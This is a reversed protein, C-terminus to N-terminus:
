WEEGAGQVALTQKAAVVTQYSEQLPERTAKNGAAKTGAHPLGIDPWRSRKRERARGRKRSEVCVCVTYM